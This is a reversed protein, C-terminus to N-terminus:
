SRDRSSPSGPTPSANSGRTQPDAEARVVVRWSYARRARASRDVALAQTLGGPAHVVNEPEFGATRSVLLDYTVAGGALVRSPQWSLVTPEGVVPEYLFVPTPRRLSTEYEGRMQSVTSQHAAYETEWLSVATPTGADDCPLNDLDPSVSVYGKVVDHWGDMSQGAKEDSLSTALLREGLATLDGREGAARPLPPPPPGGVLERAGHALTAAAAARAARVMGVRATTTGRCCTGATTAPLATSCSTRRMSDYDGMLANMALWTLYNDRQFFRAVLRRNDRNPDNVAELM